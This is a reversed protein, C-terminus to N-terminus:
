MKLDYFLHAVNNAILDENNKIVYLIINRSSIVGENKRELYRLVNLM